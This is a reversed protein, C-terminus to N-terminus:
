EGKRRRLVKGRILLVDSGFVVRCTDCTGIFSESEQSVTNPIPSAEPCGSGPTLDVRNERLKGKKDM